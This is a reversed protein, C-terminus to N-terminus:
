RDADPIAGGQAMVVFDDELQNDPDDFNFDEDM